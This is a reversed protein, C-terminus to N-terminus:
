RKKKRGVSLRFAKCAAQIAEGTELPTINLSGHGASFRYVKGYPSVDTTIAAALPRFPAKALGILQGANLGRGLRGSSTRYDVLLESAILAKVAAKSGNIETLYM